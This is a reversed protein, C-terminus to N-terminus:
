IRNIIELIEEGSPTNLYVTAGKRSNEIDLVTMHHNDLRKIRYDRTGSRSYVGGDLIRYKTEIERGIKIIDGAQLSLNVNIYFKGDKKRFISRLTKGVPERATTLNWDFVAKSQSVEGYYIVPQRKEM